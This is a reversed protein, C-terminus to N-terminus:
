NRENIFDSSYKVLDQVIKMKKKDVNPFLKNIRNSIIKGRLQQHEKIKAFDDDLLYTNFCKLFNKSLDRFKMKSVIYKMVDFDEVLAEIREKLDDLDISKIKFKNEFIFNINSRHNM